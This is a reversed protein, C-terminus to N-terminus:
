AAFAISAPCGHRGGCAALGLVRQGPPAQLSRNAAPTENAFPVKSIMSRPFERALSHRTLLRQAAYTLTQGPGYLGGHDPPILGYHQAVRAAATLGAVGATAALGSTILKRRSIPKM